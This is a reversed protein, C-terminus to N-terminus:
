SLLWTIIAAILMLWALRILRKRLLRQYTRHMSAQNRVYSAYDPYAPAVRRWPQQAFEVLVVLARTIDDLAPETWCSAYLVGGQCGAYVFPPECRPLARGDLLEWEDTSKFSTPHEGTHPIRVALDFGGPRDIIRVRLGRVETQLWRRGRRTEIEGGFVVELQGLLM